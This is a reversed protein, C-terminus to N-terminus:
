TKCVQNRALKFWTDLIINLRSRHFIRTTKVSIYVDNVTTSPEPLPILDFEVSGVTTIDVSNQGILKGVLDRSSRRHPKQDSDNSEGSSSGTIWITLLSLHM